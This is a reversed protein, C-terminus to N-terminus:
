AFWYGCVFRECLRVFTHKHTRGCTSRVWLRARNRKTIKNLAESCSHNNIAHTNYVFLADVVVCFIHKVCVWETIKKERENQIYYNDFLLYSGFACFSVLVLSFSAAVTTRKERERKEQRIIKISSEYNFSLRRCYFIKLTKYMFIFWTPWPLLSWKSAKSEFSKFNEYKKLSDEPFVHWHIKSHFKSIINSCQNSSNVQKKLLHQPEM